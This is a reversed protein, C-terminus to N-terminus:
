HSLDIGISNYTSSKIPEGRTELSDQGTIQQHKSATCSVAEYGGIWRRLGVSKDEAPDKRTFQQCLAHYRVEM